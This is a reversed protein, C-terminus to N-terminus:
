SKLTLLECRTYKALGVPTSLIRERTVPPLAELIKPVNPTSPAALKNKSLGLPMM